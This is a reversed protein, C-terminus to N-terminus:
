KVAIGRSQLGQKMAKLASPNFAKHQMHMLVVSGRQSHTTVYSVIQEQSKGRWDNTDITWLDLRLGKENFVKKVNASTAGYPPRACSTKLPITMEKRIGALSLGPLYAHTNSHSCVEHGMKRAYAVDLKDRNLCEGTVYLRLHMNLNRAAKLTTNASQKSIPCDDFTFIVPTDTVNSDPHPTRATRTLSGWTIPGVVADQVLRVDKQYALVAKKTKPGYYGDPRITGIAYGKDLLLQQMVKVCAGINGERLTSRNAVTAPCTKGTAITATVSISTPPATTATGQAPSTLGLVLLLAFIAGACIRLLKKPGFLSLHM